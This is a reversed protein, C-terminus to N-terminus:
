MYAAPLTFQYDLEHHIGRYNIKLDVAIPLALRQYSNNYAVPMAYPLSYYYDHSSDATKNESISTTTGAITYSGEVEIQSSYNTWGLWTKKRFSIEIHMRMMVPTTLIGSDKLVQRGCKVRIKKGNERYWKSDYEDEVEYRSRAVNDDLDYMAVGLQQLQSYSFIDKMNKVEGNILINGDSNLLSAIVDNSVPLYVGYDDKYNAFLLSKEYKNRFKEYAVSSEDLQEADNMAEDYVDKLSVIKGYHTIVWESREQVDLSSLTKIANEFDSESAFQLMTMGNSISDVSNSIVKDVEFEDAFDNNCSCLTLICLTFLFSNIKM